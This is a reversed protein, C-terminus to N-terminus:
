RIPLPKLKIKRVAAKTYWSALGFPRVPEQEWWISLKRDALEVDVIQEDDVWAEVKDKTVRLRVKYWRGDEFEQYGTTENEVAPLDDLNSIGTVGGGWGGLILSLYDENVPFTMGCFFDGGEIRKTELSVEYDIRPFPRSTTIGTAPTGAELIIMEDEVRVDGHRAFDYKDIVRWGSLDRDNFLSTAKPSPDVRNLEVWYSLANGPKRSPLSLSTLSGNMTEDRLNADLRLQHPRRDADDTGISGAFVGTLRGNSLRSGNLVTLLEDGLRVHVDGDPKVWMEVGLDGQYTEAKGKWYGVLEPPAFARGAGNPKHEPTKRLQEGYKPLLTALIERTMRLPLSSSTNCLVAVAIGESPVLCLRTRVGGMGGTHSVTHYGYEDPHIFWGVGYKRGDGVEATPKHMEDITEPKLIAKQDPAAQKLHFMGFRVLDHASAFVASAGPHDFDYFPLPTQDNAYRIAAHAELGPAVGVSAHTMGLPLFVERKMFEAFSMDSKTAIIHDLVGYGFNAYQYREGPPRMLVGYRRISEEFPPPTYPEDAYFFQYHLPLGSTHNALRRVTAERTNGIRAVLKQDLYANARRDLEVEGREVLVMLGTATIPKSISALSYMTHETASIRNERDAWGFGEDWIVKGDRAVAVGLSPVGEDLLAARIQDRVDEFQDAEAFSAFALALLIFSPRTKM